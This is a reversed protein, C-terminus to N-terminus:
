ERRREEGAGLAKEACARMYAGVGDFDKWNAIKQLAEGRKKWDEIVARVDKLDVLIWDDVQLTAQQGIRRKVEFELRAVHKLDNM